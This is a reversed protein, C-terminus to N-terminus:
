HASARIGGASLSSAARWPAIKRVPVPKSGRHSRAGFYRGVRPLATLVHIGRLISRYHPLIRVGEVPFGSDRLLRCVHQPQSALLFGRRSALKARLTTM